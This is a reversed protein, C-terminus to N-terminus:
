SVRKSGEFWSQHLCHQLSLRARHLIVGVNNATISLQQCIEERPLGELERLMFIQRSQETLKSLCSEVASLFQRQGLAREPSGWSIPGTDDRWHEQADFLKALHEGEAEFRRATNAKRVRDMIKHRLIGTLWTRPSSRGEFREISEVAALYTEQVLEEARDAARFYRFAYRFLYDYHEDVLDDMCPVAQPAQHVTPEPLESM